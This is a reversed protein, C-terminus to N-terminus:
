EFAHGRCSGAKEDRLRPLGTAICVRECVCVGQAMALQAIYNTVSIEEPLVVDCPSSKTLIESILSSPLVFSTTKEVM